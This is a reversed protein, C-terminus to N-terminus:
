KKQHEKLRTFIIKGDEFYPYGNFEDPELLSANDRNFQQMVISEKGSYVYVMRNVRKSLYEVKLQFDEITKNKELANQVKEVLDIMLYIQESFCIDPFTIRTISSKELIKLVEL